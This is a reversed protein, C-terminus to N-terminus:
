PHEPVKTLKLNAAAQLVAAVDNMEPHRACVASVEAFFSANVRSANASVSHSFPMTLEVGTIGHDRIVKKMLIIIPLLDEAPLGLNDEFAGTERYRTISADHYAFIVEEHRRSLESCSLGQLEAETYHRITESFPWFSWGLLVTSVGLFLAIRCVLKM